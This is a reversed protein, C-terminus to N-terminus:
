QLHSYEQRAQKLVPVDPDADKWLAFFRDYEGRSESMKNELANARALGLHALVTRPQLPDDLGPNAMLKQFELAAKDPQKAALYAEARVEIVESCALEYPRAPELAAIASAPDNQSLAVLARLEPRQLYHEITDTPKAEKQRLWAEVTALDAARVSALAYEVSTKDKVLRLLEKAKATRGLQSEVIAEEILMEQALGTSVDRASLATANEITEEFQRVKGEDADGVAEYELMANDRPRSKAWEAERRMTGPDREIIAMEYLVMHLGPSDTGQAQATAIARKADANRNVRMYARALGEYGIATRLPNLKLSQEAAHIAEAYDGRQMAINALSQWSTPDNPYVRAWELDIKEAADLDGLTMYYYNSRIFFKEWQSVNESLDFAKKAYVSAKASDGLDTYAVGLSVQAMAFKPDLDVAKQFYGICEVLKGENGIMSGQNYDELAEFSFTSANFLPVDFQEISQRSEGLKRRARTALGDLTNLLADKYTADAFYTALTRGSACSIVDLSLRYGFKEPPSEVKGKLLAQYNSRRCVELATDGLLPTDPTKEMTALTAQAEGAAMLQMYPSQGLSIELESKLTHDFAPDGTINLFDAVLVKHLEPPKAFTRWLWAGGAVAVVLAAVGWAARGWPIRRLLPLRVPAPAAVPAIEEIVVQTRERIHTVIEDALNGGRPLPVPNGAPSAAQVAATFQYGRGPITVILEAKDDLAKRLWMIHQALNSEEVFSEPWVAKMLEEKTVVRGPNAVLFSLVEFAKPSLTVRRGNRVFTRRAADLAFEDFRYLGNATLHM